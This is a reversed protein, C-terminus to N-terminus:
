LDARTMILYSLLLYSTVWLESLFEEQISEESMWTRASADTGEGRTFGAGCVEAM